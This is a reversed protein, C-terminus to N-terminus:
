KRWLGLGKSKAEQEAAELEGLRTPHEGYDHARALGRLVLERNVFVRKGERGVYVYRLLRGYKDRDPVRPDPELEVERGGVLEHNAQAAQTSYPEGPRGDGGLEPADIGIYRVREGARDITITDGDVVDTVRGSGLRLEPGEGAVVYVYDGLRAKECQRRTLALVKDGTALGVKVEYVEEREPGRAGLVEVIKGRITGRPPTLWYVYPTILLLTGAAIIFLFLPAKRERVV